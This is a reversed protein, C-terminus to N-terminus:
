MKCLFAVGRVKYRGTVTGVTLSKLQVYNAGIRSAKEQVAGKVEKKTGCTVTLDSVRTCGARTSKSVKVASAPITSKSQTSVCGFMGIGVLMMGVGLLKTM